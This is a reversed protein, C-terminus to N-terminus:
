VVNQWPLLTHAMAPVTGPPVEIQVSHPVGPWTQQSLLASALLAQWAPECQWNSGWCNVSGRVPKM